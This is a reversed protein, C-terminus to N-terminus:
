LGTISVSAPVSSSTCFRNSSLITTLDALAGGPVQRKEIPLREPDHRMLHIQHKLRECTELDLVNEIELFGNLDFLFRQEETMTIM